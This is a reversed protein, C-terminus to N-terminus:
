PGAHTLKVAVWQGWFNPNAGAPPVARNAVSLCYVGGEVPTISVAEALTATTAIGPADSLGRYAYLGVDVPFESVRPRGDPMTAGEAKVLRTTLAVTGADLRICMDIPYGPLVNTTVDLLVRDTQAQVPSASLVFVCLLVLLCRM